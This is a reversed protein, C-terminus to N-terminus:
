RVLELLPLRKDRGARRPTSSWSGAASPRTTSGPASRSVEPTQWCGHLAVVLRGAPPTSPTFLAYGRGEHRGSGFTGRRVGPSGRADGVPHHRCRM